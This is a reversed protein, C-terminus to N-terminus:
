NQLTTARMQNAWGQLKWKCSNALGCVWYAVHSQSQFPLSCSSLCTAKNLKPSPLVKKIVQTSGSSKRDSTSSVQDEQYPSVAEETFQTQDDSMDVQSLDEELESIGIGDDKLWKSLVAEEATPRQAPFPVLVSKIFEIGDASTRELLPTKPFPGGRCFALLSRPYVPFPVQLAMMQYIVCAFSWIDVANTYTSSEEDENDVFHSVEPALYFPTGTATQLATDNNSM